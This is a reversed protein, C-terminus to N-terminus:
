RREIVVGTSEWEKMAMGFVEREKDWRRPWASKPRNDPDDGHCHGAGDMDCGYLLIKTAGEGICRSITALITLNLMPTTRKIGPLYKARFNVESEPHPWTRLGKAEWAPAQNARCWILGLKPRDQIPLPEWIQRFKSPPDLCSWFDRPLTSMGANNIAVIPGTTKLDAPTLRQLSPGPALITWTSEM